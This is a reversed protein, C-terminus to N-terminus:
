KRTSKSSKELKELENKVSIQLLVFYIITVPALIFFLLAQIPFPLSFLFFSPFTWGTLIITLATLVGPIMMRIMKRKLLGKRQKESAKTVPTDSKIFIRDMIPKACEWCLGFNHRWCYSCLECGCNECQRVGLQNPHFKCPKMKGDALLM